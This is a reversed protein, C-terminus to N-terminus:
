AKLSDSSYLGLRRGLLVTGTLMVFPPIAGALLEGLGGGWEWGSL